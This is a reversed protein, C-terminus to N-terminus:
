PRRGGGTGADATTAPPVPVRAFATGLALSTGSPLRVPRDAAYEIAVPGEEAGPDVDVAIRMPSPPWHYILEGARGERCEGQLIAGWQAHTRARSAARMRLGVITVPPPPDPPGPPAEWRQRGKSGAAADLRAEAVQV